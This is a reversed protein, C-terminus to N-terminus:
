RVRILRVTRPDRDDVAAYIKIQDGVKHEGIANPRILVNQEDGANGRVVIVNNAFDINTIRGEIDATRRTRITKAERLDAMLYIEVYDGTRYGSIMGQKILVRKERGDADRVLITSEPTDVNVIEGEVRRPDQEVQYVATTVPVPAPAGADTQVTVKDSEVTTTVTAAWVSPSWILAAIFLAYAKM